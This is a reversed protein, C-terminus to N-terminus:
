KMGSPIFAALVSKSGANYFIELREEEEVLLSLSSQKKDEPLMFSVTWRKGNKRSAKRTGGSATAHDKNRLVSKLIFIGPLIQILIATKSSPNGIITQIYVIAISQNKQVDNYSTNLIRAEDQEKIDRQFSQFEELMQPM